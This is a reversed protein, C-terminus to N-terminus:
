YPTDSPESCEKGVRREESRIELVQTMNDKGIRDAISEGANYTLSQIAFDPNEM